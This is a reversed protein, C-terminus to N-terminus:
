STSNGQGADLKADKKQREFLHKETYEVMRLACQLAYSKKGPHFMWEFQCTRSCLYVGWVRRRTAQDCMVCLREKQMVAYAHVLCVTHGTEEMHEKREVGSYCQANCVRCQSYRSGNLQSGFFFRFDANPLNGPIDRDRVQKKSSEIQRMTLPENSAPAYRPIIGGSMHESAKWFPQWPQHVPPPPAPKEFYKLM